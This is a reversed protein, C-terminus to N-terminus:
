DCTWITFLCSPERNRIWQQILIKWLINSLRSHRAQFANIAGRLPSSQANRFVTHNSNCHPLLVLAKRPVKVPNQCGFWLWALRYQDQKLDPEQKTQSSNLWFVTTQQYCILVNQSAKWWDPYTTGQVMTIRNTFYLRHHLTWSACNIIM